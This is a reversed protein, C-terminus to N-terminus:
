EMIGKLANKLKHYEVIKDLLKFQEIDNSYIWRKSSSEIQFFGKNFGPSDALPFRPGNGINTSYLRGLYEMWYRRSTEINGKIGHTVALYYYFSVGNCDKELHREVFIALADELKKIVLDFEGKEFSIIAEDYLNNVKERTM